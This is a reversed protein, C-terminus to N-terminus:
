AGGSSDSQRSNGFDTTWWTVQPDLYGNPWTGPGVAIGIGVDRFSPDLINARHGPSNMWDDVVQQPSQQGAAINEGIATWDSYGAANIRHEFTSGDPGTHSLFVPGGATARMMAESRSRRTTWRRRGTCPRCGM